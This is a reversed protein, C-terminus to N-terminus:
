PRKHLYMWDFLAQNFPNFVPDATGIGTGNYTRTWVDHGANKFASLKAQYLPAPVQANYKTTFSKTTNFNTVDSEGVFSWVPTENCRWLGGQPGYAAVPAAAAIYSTADDQMTLYDFVGNGGHSLGTLYIRKPDVRYHSIMYEIFTKLNLVNGGGWNNLNGTTGYFQPSVVLMPNTIKWKGDKIMRPIGTNLVRNLVTLSSTGDGREAKGHLFILLPYKLTTFSYNYPRYLYYGYKAETSGLVYPTHSGGIDIPFGNIDTALTTPTATTTTSGATIEPSIIEETCAACLLITLMFLVPKVKLIKM